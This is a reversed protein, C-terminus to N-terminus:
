SLRESLTDAWWRYLYRYLTDDTISGAVEFPGIAALDLDHVERHMGRSLDNWPAATARYGETCSDFAEIDDPTGMGAPGFFSEYARLQRRRTDDSVDESFFAYGRVETGDVALPRVVRIQPGPHELIVMNPFLLLHQHIGAALAGGRVGFRDQLADLADADAHGEGEWARSVVTGHGGGLWLVNDPEMAQYSGPRLDIGKAKMIDLFSKHTTPVHYFDLANELQLKYNGAFGYETCGAAVKIGSPHKAVIADLYGAANGLHEELPGTSPDLTAFVFGRYSQVRVRPLSIQALDFDPPYGRRDAVGVLEGTNKYTWGHYFCRFRASNGAKARCVTAGRHMCRNLLTVLEGDAGRVLIVPQQGIYAALYDHPEPVQSEHALYVWGREFFARMELEFLRQDTYIDRHVRFRRQEPDELVLGRIWETAQVHDLISV